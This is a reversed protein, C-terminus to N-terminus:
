YIVFWVSIVLSLCFWLPPLSKMVDCNRQVNWTVFLFGCWVHFIILFACWYYNYCWVSCFIKFLMDCFMKFWLGKCLGLNCHCWLYHILPKEYIKPHKWPDFNRHSTGRSADNPKQPKVCIKRHAPAVWLNCWFRMRGWRHVDSGMIGVSTLKLSSKTRFQGPLTPFNDVDCWSKSSVFFCKKHVRLNNRNSIVFTVRLLVIIHNAIKERFIINKTLDLLRWRKISNSKQAFVTIFFVCVYQQLSAYPHTQWCLIYLALKEFGRMMCCM